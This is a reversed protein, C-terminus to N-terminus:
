LAWAEGSHYILSWKSAHLRQSKGPGDEWVHLHHYFELLSNISQNSSLVGSQINCTFSRGAYVFNPKSFAKM